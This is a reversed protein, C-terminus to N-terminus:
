ARRAARDQQPELAEVQEVVAVDEAARLRGVAVGAVTFGVNPWSTATPCPSWRADRREGVDIRRPHELELHPEDESVTPRREPDLGM